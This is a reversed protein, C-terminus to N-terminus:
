DQRAAVRMKGPPHARVCTLTHTHPPYLAEQTSEEGGHGLHDLGHLIAEPQRGGPVARGGQVAQHKVAPLLVGTLPGPEGLDVADQALHHLVWFGRLASSGGARPINGDKGWWLLYLQGRVQGQPSGEHGLVVAGDRRGWRDLSTQEGAAGPLDLVGVQRLCMSGEMWRLWKQKDQIKSM